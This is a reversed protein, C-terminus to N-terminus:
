EKTAPLTMGKLKLYVQKVDDEQKGRGVLLGYEISETFFPFHSVRILFYELHKRRTEIYTQDFEKIM